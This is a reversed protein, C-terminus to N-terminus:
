PAPNPGTEGPRDFAIAIGEVKTCTFCFVNYIPVFGYLGTQVSVNILADGGKQELAADMATKLTADGWPIVGLLFYRCARGSAPGLETYSTEQRYLSGPDGISRSVMGLNGTSSCGILVALLVLVLATRM